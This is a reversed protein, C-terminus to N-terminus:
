AHHFVTSTSSTGADCRQHLSPLGLDILGFPLVNATKINSAGDISATGDAIVPGPVTGDKFPAFDMIFEERDFMALDAQHFDTVTSTRAMMPFAFTVPGAAVFPSAGMASFAATQASAPSSLTCLAVITMIVLLKRDCRSKWRNM